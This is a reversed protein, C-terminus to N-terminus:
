RSGAATLLPPIALNSKHKKPHMHNSQHEHIHTM